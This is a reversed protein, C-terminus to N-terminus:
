LNITTVEDDSPATEPNHFHGSNRSHTDVVDWHDFIDTMSVEYEEVMLAVGPSTTGQCTVMCHPRAVKVNVYGYKDKPRIGLILTDSFPDFKNGQQRRRITQGSMFTKTEGNRNVTVRTLHATPQDYYSSSM